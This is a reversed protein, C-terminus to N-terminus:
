SIGGGGRVFESTFLTGGLSGVSSHTTNKEQIKCIELHTLRFCFWNIVRHRRSLRM